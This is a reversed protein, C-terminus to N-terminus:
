PVIGRWCCCRVKPWVARLRKTSSLLGLVTRYRCLLPIYGFLKPSKGAVSTVSTDAIARSAATAVGLGPATFGVKEKRNASILPTSTNNLISYITLVSLFIGHGFFDVFCSQALISVDAVNTKFIAFFESRYSFCNGHCLSPFDFM